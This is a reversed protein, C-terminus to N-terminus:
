PVATSHRSPQHCLVTDALEWFLYTKILSSFHNLAMNSVFTVKPINSARVGRIRQLLGLSAAGCAARPRVMKNLLIGLRRRGNV